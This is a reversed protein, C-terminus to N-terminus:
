QHYSFEIIIWYFYNSTNKFISSRAFDKLETKIIEENLQIINTHKLVSPM